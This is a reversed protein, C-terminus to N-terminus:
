EIVVGDFTAPGTGRCAINAFEIYNDGFASKPVDACMSSLRESITINPLLQSLRNQLIAADLGVSSMAAQSVTVSVKANPMEKKIAQMKKVVSLINSLLVDSSKSGYVNDMIFSMEQAESKSNRKLPLFFVIEDAMSNKDNESQNILFFKNYDGFALNTDNNAEKRLCGLCQRMNEIILNINNTLRSIIMSNDSQSFVIKEIDLLRSKLLQHRELHSSRKMKNFYDKVKDLTAELVKLKEKISQLYNEVLVKEEANIKDVDKIILNELYVIDRNLALAGSTQTFNEGFKNFIEVIQKTPTLCERLENINLEVQEEEMKGIMNSVLNFPQLQDQINKVVASSWERVQFIKTMKEQLEREEETLIINKKESLSYIKALLVNVKKGSALLLKIIDQDQERPYIDPDALEDINRKINGLKLDVTEVSGVMNSMVEEQLIDQFREAQEDSIGAIQLPMNKGAMKETIVPKIIATKEATLYEDINIDKNQRLSSWQDNLQLGLFLAITTEEKLSRKSINGLYRVCNHISRINEKSFEAPIKMIGFREQFSKKIVGLLRDKDAMLQKIREAPNDAVKEILQRVTLRVMSLNKAQYNAEGDQDTRQMLVLQAQYLPLIEGTFIKMEKPSLQEFLPQFSSFLSPAAEIVDRSLSYFESRDDQSWKEKIMRNEQTVLLSKIEQKTREVTKSNALVESLKYVLNGLSEVHKLSGAGGADDIYKSVALLGPAVVKQQDTNLYASWEQYMKKLVVDRYSGNFLEIIKGKSAANLKLRNEDEAASVYSALGLSWEENTFETKQKGPLELHSLFEDFQEPSASILNNFLNVFSVGKVLISDKGNLTTVICKVKEYQEPSVGELYEYIFSWNDYLIAVSMDSFIKELLPLQEPRNAAEQIIAKIAQDNNTDIKDALKSVMAIQQDSADELASFVTSWNNNLIKEPFAHIVKKIQEIKEPKNLVDHLFEKRYFGHEVDWSLVQQMNKSFEPPALLEYNPQQENILKAYVTNYFHDPVDVKNKYAQKAGYVGINFYQFDFLTQLQEQNLYAICQDKLIQRTVGDASVKGFEKHTVLRDFAASRITEPLSPFLSYHLLFLNALKEGDNSLQTYVDVLYPLYKEERENVSMGDNNVLSFLVDIAYERTHYDKQADTLISEQKRLFATNEQQEPSLNEKESNKETKYVDVLLDWNKQEKAQEKIEDGYVALCKANELVFDIEPIKKLKDKKRDINYLYRGSEMEKKIREIIKYRPLGFINLLDNFYEGGRYPYSNSNEFVFDVLIDEVAKVVDKNAILWLKHTEPYYQDIFKQINAPNGFREIIYKDSLAQKMKEFIIPRDTSQWDISFKEKLFGLRDVNGKSLNEFYVEKLQQQVEQGTSTFNVGLNNALQDLEYSNKHNVMLIMAMSLGEQYDQESLDFRAKLDVLENPRFYEKGVMLKIARKAALKIVEGPVGIKQFLQTCDDWRFSYKLSEALGEILNESTQYKDFFTQWDDNTFVEASRELDYILYEVRKKNNIEQELKNKALLRKQEQIALFDFDNVDLDFYQIIATPDKGELFYKKVKENALKKAQESRLDDHIFPYNNEINKINAIDFDYFSDDIFIQEVIAISLEMDTIKFYKQYESIVEVIEGPRNFKSSMRKAIATLAIQKTEPSNIDIGSEPFSGFRIKEVFEAKILKDPDNDFSSEKEIRQSDDIREARELRNLWNNKRFKQFSSSNFFNDDIKLLKKFSWWNIGYDPAGKSERELIDEIKSLTRSRLYDLHLIAEPLERAYQDIALMNAPYPGQDRLYNLYNRAKLKQDPSTDLSDIFEEDQSKILEKDDLVVEAAKESTSAPNNIINEFNLM